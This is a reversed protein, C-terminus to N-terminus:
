FTRQYNFPMYFGSFANNASLLRVDQGLMANGFNASSRRSFIDNSMGVNNFIPMFGASKLSNVLLVLFDSTFTVRDYFQKIVTSNNTMNDIYKKREAARIDAPIMENYLTNTYQAILIPNQNTEIIYNAVALYNSVNRIDFIGDKTKYYGGHIKNSIDAFIPVNVNGSIGNTLVNLANMIRNVAGSNRNFKAHYFVSTFWTDPGAKPLDISIMMNPRILMQVAKNFDMMTFDKSKTKIKTGFGAMNNEINGEVNLAGIDSFDIEGKKEPRPKFAQLWNYDENISLTSAVALLVLDPTPIFLKSTEIHTIVFNPIFKQTLITNGVGVPNTFEFDIYGYVKLIDTSDSGLNVSRTNQQTMNKFSLSVCIDQRIPMGTSDHIVNDYSNFYLNVFFKGNRYTNVVDSINIGTYKQQHLALESEIANLGNVFIDMVQVDNTVDVENPILEGDVVIINNSSVNLTESLLTTVCNIYKEDLADSPTRLIEYRVGSITEVLPTPYEGTREIMYVHATTVDDKTVSLVIGSYNVGYREKLLRTVDYKEGSKVSENLAKVKEQFKQYLKEFVEGGSGFAAMRSSMGFSIQNTIPTTQKPPVNGKVNVAM